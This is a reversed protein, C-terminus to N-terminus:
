CVIRFHVTFDSLTWAGWGAEQLEPYGRPSDDIILVEITVPQPPSVYEVGPNFTLTSRLLPRPIEQREVQRPEPGEAIERRTNETSPANSYLRGASSTSDSM